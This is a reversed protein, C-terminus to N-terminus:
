NNITISTNTTPSLSVNNFTTGYRGQWQPGQNVVSIYLMPPPYGGSANVAINTYTGPPLAFVTLGAPLNGGGIYGYEIGNSYQFTIGAAYGSYNYVNFAFAVALTFTATSVCSGNTATVTYATPASPISPMGSIVGTSTNFALGTNTTLSPSISYSTFTGTVTPSVPTINVTTSKNYVNTNYTGSGATFVAPYSITPNPEITVIVKTTSTPPIGDNTATVTCTQTQAPIGTICGTSPNISLGTGTSTMSYTAPGGTNTPCIDFVACPYYAYNVIGGTPPLTGPGYSIVPSINRFWLQVSGGATSSNATGTILTHEGYKAASTTSYTYNQGSGSTVLTPYSFGGNNGTEYTVNTMNLYQQNPYDNASNLPAGLNGMNYAELVEYAYPEIPITPMTVGTQSSPNGVAVQLPTNTINSFQVTYDYSGSVLGTTTVAGTVSTSGAVLAGNATPTSYAAGGNWTCWNSAIWYSSNGFVGNSGWQTVAEMIIPPISTSYVGSTIANGVYILQNDSPSAPVNPTVWTSSFNGVTTSAPAQYQSYTMWGTMGVPTLTRNIGSEFTPAAGTNNSGMATADQTAATSTVKIAGFDEKMEGTAIKVKLVHNGSIQIGYGAEILHVNAKAMLGAPTMVMGNPIAATTVTKVAQQNTSTIGQDKKCGYFFVIAMLALFMTKSFLKM